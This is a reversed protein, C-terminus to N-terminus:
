LQDKNDWVKKFAKVVADLDNKKMSPSLLEHTILRNYHMDEVVPCSGKHYSVKGKYVSSNWPYGNKGFAIKNQFIPLLYLPKVYGYGLKVGEAERLKTVPLEAKVADVFKNRHIGAVDQKFKIPHVYYAHACGPRVKAPELCSIQSLAENLYSVNAVRQKFLRPLRKLQERGLAAEIETMRFNFGVMNVINKVGKAEVVSEAHNRILQVREALNKNNTVVMGGEGTHINKHYNLSYIGVDGLTGALIGRYTAGPAQACDEIVLIGHKKAIKNIAEKNYPLGFIDVVIIAKTRSTIRSEVSEPSLCFYDEEIDAFVPVAGYILPAVASASMTYPSVIVEDGPGIGAAGVAAYIGSTASNVSIAYKVKFYEAWETEFAKVEQGGYFNEHWAGIFRSLIGSKVVRAAAKQEEKSFTNYAPFPKTRIKSGGNIALKSILNKEMLTIINRDPNKIVKFNYHPKKNKALLLKFVKILQKQSTVTKIINRKALVFPSVRKLGIQVSLIPKELLVSELLLMSSMGCILDASQILDWNGITNNSLTQASLSTKQKFNNIITDYSHLDERPHLKVIIHIKLNKNAKIIKELSKYINKFTTKEDYGWYRQHNNDATYNTSLPESVFVILFSGPSINLRNRLQNRIYKKNKAHKLLMQFYPQGTVVIRNKEIGDLIAEKKAFNDMVCIKTPLYLCQKHKNFLEIQGIKYESFRIGYNMWSDLVAFSPVGLKSSAAWLYRETMDEASTGTIIFDPSTKKLFKEITAVTIMDIAKSIDKGKLNYEEYKKLATNKGYLLVKYGKKKLPSVLPIITNSGGPDNSFLLVKKNM